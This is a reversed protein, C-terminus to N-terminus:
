PEGEQTGNALQRNAQSADPEGEAAQSESEVPLPAYLRRIADEAMDGNLGLAALTNDLRVKAAILRDSYALFEAHTLGVQRSARIVKKGDEERTEECVAIAGPEGSEGIIRSLRMVIRLCVCATNVRSAAAIGGGGRDLLEKELRIRFRRVAHRVGPADRNLGPLPM